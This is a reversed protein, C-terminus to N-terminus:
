QSSLRALRIPQKTFSSSPAKLATAATAQLPEAVAVLEAAVMCDAQAVLVALSRGLHVVAAQAEVAL